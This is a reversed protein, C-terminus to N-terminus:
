DHERRISSVTGVAPKDTLFIFRRFLRKAIEPLHDFDTGHFSALCKIGALSFSRIATFDNESFLEDCVVIQPSMSRIVNEYLYEKPIGQIVDARKGTKMSLDGCLEEREDIYLTDYRESLTLAMDRILTTKGCFPPSVVLTDSFDSYFDGLRRSLGIIEHPFRICLSNIRSFVLKGASLRKGKGAVGIRVGNRYAVYGSSIQDEFAYPSFLTARKLVEEPYTESPVFDCLRYGTALKLLLPKHVRVRIETVDALSGIKNLVQETLLNEM